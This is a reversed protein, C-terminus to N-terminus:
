QIRWHSPFPSLPYSYSLQRLPHRKSCFVQRSRHLYIKFNDFFLHILKLKITFSSWKIGFSKNIYKPTINMTKPANPNIVTKIKLTNFNIRHHCPTNIIIPKIIKINIPNKQKLCPLYKLCVILVILFYTYILVDWSFGWYFLGASKEAKGKIKQRSELHCM